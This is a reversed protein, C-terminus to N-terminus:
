SPILFGSTHWASIVQRRLWSHAPDNDYRQHWACILPVPPLSFPLAMTHLDLADIMDRCSEEPVVTIASTRQVIQLAATSTPVAAVVQRTLGHETLLDDIRDHRRGRRSVVIHQAAAYAALTLGSSRLRHDARVVVALRGSGLTEFRIEPLTPRSSGLELDVRGHRLDSTDTASEALFRLTVGPAGTVVASVLQPAIVSTVVDHGRLTFTRELTALDLTRRPALVEHAQQVLLHVQAQVALAYPTPTMTRGTRVLIEDETLARIRGLTRSMAPNSLRLRAAAGMVSGEELLADLATLLNLDLHM